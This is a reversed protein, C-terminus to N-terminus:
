LYVLYSAIYQQMTSIILYAIFPSFDVAMHSSGFISKSILTRIPSLIPQTVNYLLKQIKRINGSHPFWSLVASAIIMFSMLMLFLNLAELFLKLM